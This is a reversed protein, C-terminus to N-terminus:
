GCGFSACAAHPLRACLSSGSGAVAGTTAQINPWRSAPRLAARIVRASRV